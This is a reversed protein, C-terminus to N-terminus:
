RVVINVKCKWPKSILSVRCEQLHDKHRCCRRGPEVRCQSVGLVPAKKLEARAEAAEQSPAPLLRGGDAESGGLVLEKKGDAAVVVGPSRCDPLDSPVQEEAVVASDLQDIPRSGRVQDLAGGVWIILAYDTEPECGEPRTAKLPEGREV